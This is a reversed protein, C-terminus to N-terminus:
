REFEHCSDVFLRDIELRVIVVGVKLRNNKRRSERVEEDITRLSNSNAHCGVNRWVVKTFDDIRGQVEQCIRLCRGVVEHCKDFARIKRCSSLNEASGADHVGEPGPPARDLHAGYGFNFFDFADALDDHRLQRILGGDLRNLRADSFKRVAFFKLANGAQEVRAGPLLWLEDDLQLTIRVRIHHEVLKVLHRWQLRTETHVCKREDVVNRPREIKLLDKLM